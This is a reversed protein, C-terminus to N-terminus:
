KLLISSMGVKVNTVGEGVAIIQGSSEHGLTFPKTFIYDGISNQQWVHIDTGCIGCCEMRLLVESFTEIMHHSNMVCKIQIYQDM